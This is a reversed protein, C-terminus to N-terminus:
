GEGLFFNKQGQMVIFLVCIREESLGKKLKEEEKGSTKLLYTAYLIFM